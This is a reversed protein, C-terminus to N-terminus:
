LWKRLNVSRGVVCRPIVGNTESFLRLLRVFMVARGMCGYPRKM